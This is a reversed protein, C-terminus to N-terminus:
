RGKTLRYLYKAIDARTIKEGLTTSDSSDFIGMSCMAYVGSRAWVPIDSDTAFVSEEGDTNAGIINTMLMAAEYRTIKEDPSFLLKGDKFDGVILGTRQATAIYGKLSASIDNDDDFYTRTLTSDAKIGACKMAMAVFEARSVEEDPRFYLDDGIQMGSMIGMATMAVAANYEEREEMDRYVTDCMRETVKVSVTMPESYNGYEDRAVYTFKDKGTYGKVPTYCYRGSENETLSLIGRKPYSVIIYEVADGEPDIADLNGYFSITSQTQINSASVSDGLAEPAYNVKDIFKLICEIEAGGAYGDVTFKFKCESVGDSAPLFVLGGLNKRKIVRGKGVRRGSLLLTGDTSSPIETITITDFDSLVLASKFDGDTFTIKQGVLGTKIMKVDSAVVRAGSGFFASAEVAGLCIVSLMVSVTIILSIIKKM